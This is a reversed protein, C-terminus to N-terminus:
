RPTFIPLWGQIYNTYTNYPGSILGQNHAIWCKWWFITQLILASGFLFMFENNFIGVFEFFFFLIFSPLLHGTIYFLCNQLSVLLCYANKKFASIFGQAHSCLNMISPHISYKPFGHSQFFKIVLWSNM